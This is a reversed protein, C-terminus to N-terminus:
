VVCNFCRDSLNVLILRARVYINDCLHLRRNEAPTLSAALFDLAAWKWLSTWGTHSFIGTDWFSEGLLRTIETAVANALSPYGDCQAQKLAMSHDVVTGFEGSAPISHMAEVFISVSGGQLMQLWAQGALKWHRDGHQEGQKDVISEAADLLAFGQRRAGKVIESDTRHTNKVLWTHFAQTLEGYFTSRLFGESMDSVTSLGRVVQIIMDMCCVAAEPGTMLRGAEKALPLRTVMEDAAERRLQAITTCRSIAGRIVEM